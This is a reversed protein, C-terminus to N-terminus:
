RACSRASRRTWCSRTPVPRSRSRPEGPPGPAAPPRTTRRSGHTAAAGQLPDLPAPVPRRTGPRVTAPPATGPQRADSVPAAPRTPTGTTTARALPPVSRAGTTTAAVLPLARRAGTTTAAVLPPGIRASTVSGAAIPRPGAAESGRAPATRGPVPQGVPRRRAPTAAHGPPVATATPVPRLDPRNGGPRRAISGTVPPDAPQDTQRDAGPSPRHGQRLGGVPRRPIGAVRIGAVLPPATGLGAIPRIPIKQRGRRGQASVRRDAPRQPALDTPTSGLGAGVARPAAVTLPVPDPEAASLAAPMEIAPPTVTPPVATQRAAPTGAALQRAPDAQVVAPLVAGVALGPPASAAPHAM